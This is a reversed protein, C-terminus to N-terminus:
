LKGLARRVTMRDVGAIKAAQVESMGSDVAAVIAAYMEAALAREVERSKAWSVGARHLQAVLKDDALEPVVSRLNDGRAVTNGERDTREYRVLPVTFASQDWDYVKSGDPLQAYRGQGNSMSRFKLLNRPIAASM